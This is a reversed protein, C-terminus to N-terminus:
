IGSFLFLASGAPCSMAYDQMGLIYERKSNMKLYPVFLKIGIGSQDICLGKEEDLSFVPMTFDQGKFLRGSEPGPSPYNKFTDYVFGIGHAGLLVYASQGKIYELCDEVSTQRVVRVVRVCYETSSIPIHSPKSLGDKFLKNVTTPEYRIRFSFDCLATQHAYTIPVSVHFEDIVLYRGNQEM